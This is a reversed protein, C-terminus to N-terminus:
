TRKIVGALSDGLFGELPSHLLNPSTCLRVRGYLGLFMWGWDAQTGRFQGQGTSVVAATATSSLCALLGACILNRM